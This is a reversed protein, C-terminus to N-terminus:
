QRISNLPSPEVQPCTAILSNNAPNLNDTVQHAPDVTVTPATAPICSPGVFQETISTRAPLLSLQVIQVAGAGSPTFEVEFPGADSRGANAIQAIYLDANPQGVIPSATFSRVILDPRLEPQFCRQSTLTTTDLPGGGAGTWRFTIRFKYSAPAALDLVPHNVIWADGPRQGLTPNAPTLWQGLYRGSLVHFPGSPRARSLLEVRIAMQETGPVPRMVSQISLERQAPERARQCVFDRLAARPPASGVATALATGSPGLWCAALVGVLISRERV